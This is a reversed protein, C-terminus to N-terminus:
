QDSMFVHWVLGSSIGTSMVVTDLYRTGLMAATGLDHGTGRISFGRSKEPLNLSTDTIYWIMLKGDQEAVKIVRDTSKLKLSQEDILELEQKYIKKM